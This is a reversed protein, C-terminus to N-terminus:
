EMLRQLLVCGDTVVQQGPRLGGVVMVRGEQEDGIDVQQRKFRGPLEEVFVFHRDGSLFVAKSQVSVAASDAGQLDVTVFMEAKLRAAHDVTGRVKITRTGPDISGSVIDVRGTFTQGSFPRATFTFEQGPQLRPLDAETADIQIWLRSPDSVVFLPATFQPANALMMDPRIEQGPSLNKEVVTGSIPSLLVFVGEMADTGAGYLALRSVARSRESSAQAEAAEAADVDKQAAAGHASLKRSRALNRRALRLDSEAKRADAQAMGFDASEVEAMPAGKAIVQGVEATIGRVRGAFPTFVRVTLDDDWMLRGSLRIGARRHTEVPAVELASLQPANTPFTISEGSVAASPSEEPVPEHGCAVLLAALAAANFLDFTKM